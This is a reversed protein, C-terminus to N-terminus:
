PLRRMSAAVELLVDEDLNESSLQIATGEREFVATLPIGQRREPRYVTFSVGNREVEDTEVGHPGYAVWDPERAKAPRETIMLHHTADSRHYALHVSEKMPPRQREPSYMIHLDWRGEPLEPVYFLPFSARQAADEITMPEHLGIDPSRVEEGPPPGFVFTEPPLEEDLVLEEVDCVWFEEGELRAAARLVVGRERDVVLDYEEAGVPLQGRFMFADSDSPERGTARVRVARRGLLDVEGRPEFDLAPIWGAPDLLAQWLEGGGVSMSEAEEGAGVNSVAGWEPSYTWWREGDRVTVHEYREPAVLEAEERLRAPPESWFRVIQEQRDPPEAPPGESVAMMRAYATGRAHGAERMAREWREHAEQSLSMRWSHRLVGCVTRYRRRAGHLLELLEGLESM